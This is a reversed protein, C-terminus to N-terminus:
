DPGLWHTPHEGCGWAWWSKTLLEEVATSSTLSHAEWLISGPLVHVNQSTSIQQFTTWDEMSIESQVAQGATTGERKQVIGM